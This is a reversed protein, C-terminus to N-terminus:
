ELDWKHTSINSGLSFSKKSNLYIYSRSGNHCGKIIILALTPDGLNQAHKGLFAPCERKIYALEWVSIGGEYSYWTFVLHRFNIWASFSLHPSARTGNNIPFSWLCSNISFARCEKKLCTLDWIFPVTRLVWLKALLMLQM